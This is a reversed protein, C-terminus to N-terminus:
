RNAKRDDCRGGAPRNRPSFIPSTGKRNNDPVHLKTAPCPPGMGCASGIHMARLLLVKNPAPAPTTGACERRERAIDVSQRTRGPVPRARGVAPLGEATEGPTAMVLGADRALHAGANDAAAAVGGNGLGIGLGLLTLAALRASGRFTGIRRISRTGAEQLKQMTRTM